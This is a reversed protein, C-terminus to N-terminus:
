NEMYWTELADKASPMYAGARGCECEVRYGKDYEYIIVKKEGCECVPVNKLDDRGWCINCESRPDLNDNVEVQEGGCIPCKSYDADEQNWPADPDNDRCGDPSNYAM